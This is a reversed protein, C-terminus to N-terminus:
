QEVVVVVVVVVAAAVQSIHSRTNRYVCVLQQEVERYIRACCVGRDGAMLM